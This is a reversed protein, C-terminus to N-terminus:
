NVKSIETQVMQRSFSAVLTWAFGPESTFDCYATFLRLKSDFLTCHGNERYGLRGYQRCSKPTTKVSRTSRKFNTQERAQYVNNRLGNAEDENDKAYVEPFYQFLISRQECTMKALSHILERTNYSLNYKPLKM